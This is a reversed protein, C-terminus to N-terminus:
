AALFDEYKQSNQKYIKYELSYVFSDRKVTNAIKELM